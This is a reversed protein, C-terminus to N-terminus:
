GKKNEKVRKYLKAASAGAMFNTAALLVPFFIM